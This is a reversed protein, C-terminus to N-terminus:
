RHEIGSPRPHVSPGRGDHGVTLDALCPPDREPRDRGSTLVAAAVSSRARRPAVTAMAAKEYKDALKQHYEVLNRFFVASREQQNRMLEEGQTILGRRYERYKPTITSDADLSRLFDQQVPLLSDPIKGSLLQKVSERKRSAEAESTRALPEYSRPSRDPRCANRTISALRTAWANRRVGMGFLLAVYAVLVMLLGRGSSSSAEVEMSRANRPRGLKDGVLLGLGSAWILGWILHGPLMHYGHLM